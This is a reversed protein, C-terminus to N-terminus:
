QGPLVNGNVDTLQGQNNRYEPAPQQYSQQSQQQQQPQQYNQNQQPQQYNGQNNQEDQLFLKVEGDWAGTPIADLTLHITVKGEKEIENAFGLTKWSTKMQGQNQSDPYQKAYVAKFKRMKNGKIRKLLM